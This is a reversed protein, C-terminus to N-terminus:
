VYGTGVNEMPDESKTATFRDVLADLLTTKAKAKAKAVALKAAYNAFELV